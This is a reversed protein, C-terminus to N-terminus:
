ATVEEANQFGERDASYREWEPTWKWPKEFYRLLAEVTYLDGRWALAAGLDYVNDYVMYWKIDSV